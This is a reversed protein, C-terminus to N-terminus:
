HVRVLAADTNVLTCRNTRSAQEPEPPAPSPPTAAPSPPPSPEVTYKSLSVAKHIAAAMVLIPVHVPYMPRDLSLGRWKDPMFKQAYQELSMANLEQEESSVVLLDEAQEHQDVFM